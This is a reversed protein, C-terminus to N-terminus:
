VRILFALFQYQLGILPGSLGVSISPDLDPDFTLIPDFDIVFRNESQHSLEIDARHCPFSIGVPDDVVAIPRDVGIRIQKPLIESAIPRVL